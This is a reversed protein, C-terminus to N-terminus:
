EKIYEDFVIIIDVIFFDFICLESWVLIIFYEIDMLEDLWVKM